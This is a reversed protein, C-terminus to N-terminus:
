LITGNIFLHNGNQNVLENSRVFVNKGIDYNFWLIGNGNGKCGFSIIYTSIDTYDTTKNHVSGFLVFNNRSTLQSKKKSNEFSIFVGKLLAQDIACWAKNVANYFLIDKYTDEFTPM